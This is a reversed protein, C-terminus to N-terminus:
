ADSNGAQKMDHELHNIGPVTLKLDELSSTDIWGKLRSTDILSQELSTPVKLKKISRYCTFVHDITIPKEKATIELFYVFLLNREMNSSPAYRSYFDRLSENKNKKSLDLDNVIKQVRKGAQRSKVKKPTEESTTKKVKRRPAHKRAPTHSSAQAEALKNKFDNYIKQVFQETGDAEVIGKILDIRIKTTM